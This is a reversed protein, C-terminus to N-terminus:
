VQGKMEYYALLTAQLTEPLAELDAWQLGERDMKIRTNVIRKADYESFTLQVPGATIQKLTAALELLTFRRMRERLQMAETMGRFYFSQHVIPMWDGPAVRYYYHSNDPLKEPLCLLGWGAERMAWQFQVLTVTYRDGPLFHVPELQSPLKYGAVAAREGFGHYAYDREMLIEVYEGHGALLQLMDLLPYCRDGHWNEKLMLALRHACLKGDITDRYARDQCECNGAQLTCRSGNVRYNDGGVHVVNGELIFGVARDSRSGGKSYTIMPWKTDYLRALETLREKERPDQAAIEGQLAAVKALERDRVKRARERIAAYRNVNEPIETYEQTYM